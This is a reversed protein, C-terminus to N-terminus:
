PKCRKRIFDPIGSSDTPGVLIKWGTAEEIESSLRAARGPIVLMRHNVKEAVESKRMAEAVREATLKRGAVASEVSMGGTDVVLLHCSTGSGEIDSAVTHYTLAFNTTCLLPSNADVNGFARLGPEVAVPVRPDAYLNQRLVLNPLLAWGGVSHMLLLDAHRTILMSALCAEQWEATESVGESRPWVSIPTGMLPFGVVRNGEECASRRLMTFNDITEAIQNSFTGPDLIIDEIGCELLTASLSSLLDLDGPTSVVIPCRHTLALRAMEKWNESTAAYLLPRRPGIVDLAASLVEPNLSCLMMPPTTRKAIAEAAESFIKPNNSTCRLAIMDLKLRQGVYEYSLSEVTSIRRDIERDTDQDSIDIAIATPNPYAFQHRYMMVKGGIKVAEKGTGIIIEKVAPRLMEHLKQLNAMYEEDLLPPCADVSAVRQALKTAFSMCNEEGCLRCDTQPLLAHVDIPGPLRTAMIEM